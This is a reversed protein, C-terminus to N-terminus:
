KNFGKGKHYNGPFDKLLPLDGDLKHVIACKPSVNLLSPGKEVWGRHHDADQVLSYNICDSLGLAQRYSHYAGPTVVEDAAGIFHHQPITRLKDTYNLALVATSSLGTPRTALDFRPNLDGAVTRLTKIDNRTAALVAAINAGGGFGVIHFNTIDYRAAIDDLALNYAEMVEPDFRNEKWYKADCGKKTPAKLYQCPRALYALNEAKDRSSLGLGTPSQPSSQFGFMGDKDISEKSLDTISDGEIYLTAPAGRQHMREWAQLGFQGANITRDVMFAPRAIHNASQQKIDTVTGCASLTTIALITTITLFFIKHM